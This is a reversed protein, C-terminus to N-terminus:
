DKKMVLVIPLHDSVGGTYRPGTYTRLPKMGSHVNDRVQLFDPLCIDMYAKAAVDGSVLFMDILEWKGGYRITGAGKEHLPLGLNELVQGTLAFADGDPTDNFDGMCVVNREGCNLLSDCIHVMVSMAAHRRGASLLAGGYKSPHHNVLFHFTEGNRDDLSVHLIDRTNMINGDIDRRVPFVKWVANAFSSKRYMLAVDIGRRDPSDEHIKGYGYKRLVTGDAISRLVGGNEIEAVGIVDPVHGYRDAIWLLTKAVAHCKRWYRGKTWRREGEPSFDRDSDGEGGDNWDFFNELNWFVAVLTDCETGSSSVTGACFCLCSILLLLKM